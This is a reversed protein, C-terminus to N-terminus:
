DDDNEDHRERDFGSRGGRGAEEAEGAEGIQLRVGVLPIGVSGDSARFGALLGGFWLGTLAILLLGIGARGSTIGPGEGVPAKRGHVMSLAINEKHQVTHLVVGAIHACVLVVMAYALIEHIEEVSENGLGLMVGTGALALTVGFMAFIAGSSGPNHGLERPAGGGLVGRFYRFTEGPGFAFSGLKAYRTGVLGWVLRMSVLAAITLGLIAHYPFLSGDEGMVLAIVAAGTFGVAFLWHFLRTPVDWVLVGPM